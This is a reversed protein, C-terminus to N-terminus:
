HCFLIISLSLVFYYEEANYWNNRKYCNNWCACFSAIDEAITWWGSSLEHLTRCTSTCFGGAISNNDLHYFHSKMPAYSANRRREMTRTQCWRTVCPVDKARLRSSAPFVTGVKSAENDWSTHITCAVLIKHCRGRIHLIPFTSNHHTNPVYSTYFRLISNRIMTIKYDSSM